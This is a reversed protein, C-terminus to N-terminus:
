QERYGLIEATVGRLVRGKEPASKDVRSAFEIRRIMIRFKQFECEDPLVLEDSQNIENFRIEHAETDIAPDVVRAVLKNGQYIADDVREFMPAPKATEPNPQTPTEPVTPKKRRFLITLGGAVFLLGSLALLDTASIV